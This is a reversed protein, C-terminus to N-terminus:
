VSVLTHTGLGVCSSVGLALDFRGVHPRVASRTTLRGLVLRFPGVPPSPSLVLDVVGLVRDFMGVCAQVIWRLNSLGM